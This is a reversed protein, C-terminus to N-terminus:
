NINAIQDRIKIILALNRIKLILNFANLKFILKDLHNKM